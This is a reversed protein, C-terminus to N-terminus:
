KVKTMEEKIRVRVIDLDELIKELDNKNNTDIMIFFRAQKENKWKSYCYYEGKFTEIIEKNDIKM